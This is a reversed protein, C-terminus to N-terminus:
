TAKGKFPESLLKKEACFDLTTLGVHPACARALVRARARLSLLKQHRKRTPQNRPGFKEPAATRSRSLLAAVQRARRPSPHPAFSKPQRHEQSRHRTARGAHHHARGREAGGGGQRSRRERDCGRGQRC